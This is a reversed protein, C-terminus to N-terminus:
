YEDDFDPNESKAEEEAERAEEELREAYVDFNCNADRFKQAQKLKEDYFGEAEQSVFVDEQLKADLISDDVDVLEFYQESGPVKEGNEYEKIIIGDPIFNSSSCTDTEIVSIRGPQSLVESLDRFTNYAM